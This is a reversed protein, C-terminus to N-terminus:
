RQAATFAELTVCSHQVVLVGQETQGLPKEYCVRHWVEDDKVKVPSCGPLALLLLALACIIGIAIFARHRLAAREEKRPRIEDIIELM